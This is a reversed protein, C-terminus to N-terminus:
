YINSLKENIYMIADRKQTLIKSLAIYVQDKQLFVSCCKQRVDARQM